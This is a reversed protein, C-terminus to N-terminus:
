LSLGGSWREGAGPAIGLRGQGRRQGGGGARGGGDRLGGHFEFVEREVDGVGAGVGGPIDSVEAEGDGALLGLRGVRGEEGVARAAGDDLKVRIGVGRHGIEGRLMGENEVEGDDGGVGAGVAGAEFGGAGGEEELRGLGVARHEDHQAVRPADGELEALAGFGESDPLTESGGERGHVGHAEGRRNGREAKKESEASEGGAGGLEDTAEGEDRIRRRAAGGLVAEGFEGGGQPGAAPFDVL